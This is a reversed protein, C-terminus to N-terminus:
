YTYTLSGPGSCSVAGSKDGYNGSAIFRMKFNNSAGETLPVSAGNGFETNSFVLKVDSDAVSDSGISCSSPTVLSVTILSGTKSTDRLVAVVDDSEVNQAADGTIVNGFNFSASTIINASADRWAPADLITGTVDLSLNLDASSAVSASLLITAVFSGATLIKTKM